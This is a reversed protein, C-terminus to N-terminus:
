CLCQLKNIFLNLHIGVVPGCDLHTRFFLNHMEREGCRICDNRHVLIMTVSDNEYLYSLYVYKRIFYYNIRFHRFFFFFFLFFCFFLQSPSSFSISNFDNQQFDFPLLLTTPVCYIYGVRRLVSFFCDINKRDSFKNASAVAVSVCHSSLLVM